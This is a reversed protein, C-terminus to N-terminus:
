CIRRVLVMLLVPLVTFLFHINIKLKVLYEGEEAMTSVNESSLAFVHTVSLGLDAQHTEWVDEVDTQGAASALVQENLRDLQIENILCLLALIADLVNHEAFKEQWLFIFLPFQKSIKVVLSPLM